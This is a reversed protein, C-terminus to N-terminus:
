CYSNNKITLKNISLPIALEGNLIMNYYPMTITLNDGKLLEEM